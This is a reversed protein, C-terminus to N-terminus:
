TLGWPNSNTGGGGLPNGSSPASPASSTPTPGPVNGWPTQGPPPGGWPPTSPPNALGGPPLGASNGGGNAHKTGDWPTKMGWYIKKNNLGPVHQFFTDGAAAPIAYQHSHVNTRVGREKAIDTMRGTLRTTIDCSDGGEPTRSEDIVFSDNMLGNFMELPNAVVLGTARDYHAYTAIAKRGRHSASLILQIISLDIGSLSLRCGNASQDTSEGFGEVALNGGVAVYTNGNYLLNQGATTLYTTGGAFQLELLETKEASMAAIDALMAANLARPM